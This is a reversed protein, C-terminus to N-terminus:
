FEYRFTATAGWVNLGPFVPAHINADSAYQMWEGGIYLQDQILYDVGFGISLNASTNTKKLAGLKQYNTSLTTGGLLGYIRLDESVPLQFKALYSFFWDVGFTTQTNNILASGNGTTGIRGELAIYENLGVGFLGYGGLVTDSGLGPDVIFGGLGAGFYPQPNMEMDQANAPTSAFLLVFATVIM